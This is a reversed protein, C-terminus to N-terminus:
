CIGWKLHPFQLASVKGLDYFPPTLSHHAVGCERRGDWCSKCRHRVLMVQLTYDIFCVDRPGVELNESEASRLLPVQFHASRMLQWTM